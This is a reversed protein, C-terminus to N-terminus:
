TRKSNRRNNRKDEEADIVELEGEWVDEEIYYYFSTKITFKREPRRKFYYLLKDELETIDGWVDTFETSTYRILEHM